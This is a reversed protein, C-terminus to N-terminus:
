RAATTGVRPPAQGARASEGTAVRSPLLRAAVLTTIALVAIVLWVTVTLSLQQGAM